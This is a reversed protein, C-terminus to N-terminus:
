YLDRAHVILLRIGRMGSFRMLDQWTKYIRVLLEM